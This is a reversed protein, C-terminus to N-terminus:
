LLRSKKGCPKQMMSANCHKNVAPTREYNAASFEQKFDLDSAEVEAQLAASKETLSKQRQLTQVYESQIKKFEALHKLFDEKAVALALSTSEIESKM